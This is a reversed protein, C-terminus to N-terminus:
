SKSEKKMNTYKKIMDKCDNAHEEAKSKFHNIQSEAKQLKDNNMNLNKIEELYEENKQSLTSYIEKLKKLEKEHEEIKTDKQDSIENNKNHLRQIMESQKKLLCATYQREAKRSRISLQFYKDDMGM